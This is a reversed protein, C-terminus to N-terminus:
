LRGLPSSRAGAGAVSFGDPVATVRLKLRGSQRAPLVDNDTEKSFHLAINQPLLGTEQKTSGAWHYGFGSM